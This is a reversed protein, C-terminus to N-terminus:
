DDAVLSALLDVVARRQAGPRLAAYGRLLEVAGPESMLRGLDAFAGHGDDNEGMLDGVSTGLTEAIRSATSLSIRNWAKEYKQVQQFSVGIAEALANQSM